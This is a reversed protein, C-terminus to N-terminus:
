RELTELARWMWETYNGEFPEYNDYFCSGKKGGLYNYTHKTRPNYFRIARCHSWEDGWCWVAQGDFFGTEPCVELQQWVNNKHNIWNDSYTGVSDFDNNVVVTGENLSTFKVVKKNRVNVCYIPYKQEIPKKNTKEIENRLNDLETQLKEIKKELEM